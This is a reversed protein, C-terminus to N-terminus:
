KNVFLTVNAGTSFQVTGDSVVFGTENTANDTWTLQIETPSIATAQLGSPAAPASGNVTINVLAHNNLTGDNAILILM